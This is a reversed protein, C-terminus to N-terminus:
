FEQGLLPPWYPPVSRQDWREALRLVFSHSWIRRLLPLLLQLARRIYWLDTVSSWHCLLLLLLLLLLRIQIAGAHRNVESACIVLLFSNMCLPYCHWLVLTWIVCSILHERATAISVLYHDDQFSYHLNTIWRKDGYVLVDREEQFCATQLCMAICLVLWTARKLETAAWHKSVTPCETQLNYSELRWCNGFSEITGKLHSSALGAAGQLWSNVHNWAYAHM